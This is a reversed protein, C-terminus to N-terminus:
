LDVMRVRRDALSDGEIAQEPTEPDSALRCNTTAWLRM